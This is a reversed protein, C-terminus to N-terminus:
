TKSSVAELFERDMAMVLHVLRDLADTGTLGYARAYELIARFPIRGLAGFGMQRETSLTWFAEWTWSLHHPVEVRDRMFPLDEDKRGAARNAALIKEAGDGWAM